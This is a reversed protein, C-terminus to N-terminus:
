ADQNATIDLADISQRLEGLSTHIHDLEDKLSDLRGSESRVFRTYPEIASLLKESARRMEGEFQQGISEELGDRLQQMKNHLETKAKQRRRPIIFLGLGAIAVGVTIGTVDLVTSSVFALVAAGLGIGSVIGIGSQFVSNQLNDALRRAEGQEDYNELVEQASDRLTRILNERDYQFRGGIDGMIRTESAQRRENVFTMVDEWLGLNKQLFWDVLESVALDVQTDADRIVRASFDQKIRDSNMLGLINRFRITDDFYVEGRREVEILVTKIRNLYSDFERRLDKEFQQIQRDVEELTHRDDMLLGLRSQIVEQYDKALHQAVGLPNRLKLKLRESTTLATQIAEELELLGSSKLEEANQSLRAKFGLRSSIAFVQPRLDLTVQAQQHIFELIKEQEAPSELIDAKNVVIVIKKGWSTILELFSRESETFPRDASTVFLVLDARPVFHETLEQHKKIVANTGPTDVFALDRLLDKPYERRMLAPSVEIERAESGYTVITVRDTTPTVGELMVKEGLMANILSSKGANYEGCVVLMFMGELDALATKLAQLDADSAGLKGLLQSLDNIISREQTVLERTAESFDINMHLLIAHTALTKSSAPLPYPSVSCQLNELCASPNEPTNGIQTARHSSGRVLYRVARHSLM